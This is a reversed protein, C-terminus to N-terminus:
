YEENKILIQERLIYIKLKFLNIEDSSTDTPYKKELDRALITLEDILNHIQRIHLYLKLNYYAFKWNESLPIIKWNVEKKLHQNYDNEVPDLWNIWEEIWIDSKFSNCLPCSYVLNSYDNELEPFIKKPKFHDIQYRKHWQYIRDHTDCYWCRWNFDKKLHIKYRKYDSYEKWFTRGPRDKIYTM